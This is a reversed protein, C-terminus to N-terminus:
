PSRRRSSRPTTATARTPATASRCTATSRWASRWAWSGCTRPARGQRARAPRDHQARQGLGRLHRLQDHRLRARLARARLARDGPPRGAGRGRRDGRGLRPGHRGLLAALLARPRAQARPARARHRLVLGGVPAQLAPPGRPQDGGARGARGGVPSRPSEPLARDIAEAVGLARCVSLAAAPAGFARVEVAKPEGVGESLRRAVEEPKDLYTTKVVKSRGGVRATERLHLYPRGNPGRRHSRDCRCGSRRCFLRACRRNARPCRREGRTCPGPCAASSARCPPPPRDPRGRPSIDTAPSGVGGPRSAGLDIVWAAGPPPVCGARGSRGGLHMSSGFRPQGGRPRRTEGPRQRPGRLLLRKKEVPAPAEYWLYPRRRPAPGAKDAPPKRATARRVPRAAEV